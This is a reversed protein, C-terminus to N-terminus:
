YFILNLGAILIEYKDDNQAEHAGKQENKINTPGMKVNKINTPGM